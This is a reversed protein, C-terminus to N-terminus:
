DAGTRGVLYHRKASTTVTQCIVGRTNELVSTVKYYSLGTLASLFTKTSFPNYFLAETVAQATKIKNTM